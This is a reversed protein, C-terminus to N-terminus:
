VADFARPYVLREDPVDDGPRAILLNKVPYGSVLRAARGSSFGCRAYFSPKGLVVLTPTLGTGKTWLILHSFETFLQATQRIIRTGFRFYPQMEPKERGLAGGQWEPLVAVPALAFWGDPAVMRSIGAYAGIRGQWRMVRESVMAGDARLQRVLAAEEPGPFAARLLADVEDHDESRMEGVDPGIVM